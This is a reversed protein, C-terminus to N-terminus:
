NYYQSKDTFGLCHSGSDNQMHDCGGASCFLLEVIRKKLEPSERESPARSSLFIKCFSIIGNTEEPYKKVDVPTTSRMFCFYIHMPPEAVGQQGFVSFFLVTHGQKTDSEMKHPSEFYKVM